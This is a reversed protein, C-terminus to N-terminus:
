GPESYIGYADLYMLFLVDLDVSRQRNSDRSWSAEPGWIEYPEIM